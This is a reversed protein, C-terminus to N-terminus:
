ELRQMQRGMAKEKHRHRKHKLDEKVKRKHSCQRNEPGVRFWYSKM